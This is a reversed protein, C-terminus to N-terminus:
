FEGRQQAFTLAADSPRVNILLNAPKLDRHMWGQRHIHQLGTLLDRALKVVLPIPLGRRRVSSKIAIVDTPLKGHKRWERYIATKRRILDNLTGGEELGLSLIVAKSGRVQFVDLLEAINDHNQLDALASIERLTSHAMGVAM